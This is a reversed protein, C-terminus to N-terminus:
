DSPLHASIYVMLASRYSDGIPIDIDGIHVYQKGIHTLRDTNVIFSRHVRMFNGLELLRHELARMSSLTMVSHGDELCIKVYDKYGEVYVIDRADIRELRRNNKLLLSTDPIVPASTGASTVATGQRLNYTELARLAAETFQEFSVPKLLYGVARVKFADVAYNDYATIFIVQTHRPVLRSFEVGNLQPMNIDLFVLDFEGSVVAKVAEAANGYIGCLELFPTKKVYSAILEAALPEDDIVCVKM